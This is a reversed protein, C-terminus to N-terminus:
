KDISGNDKKHLLLFSRQGALQVLPQFKCIMFAPSILRFEDQCQACKAPHNEEIHKELSTSTELINDCDVCTFIHGQHIAVVYIHM